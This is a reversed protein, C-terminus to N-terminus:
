KDNTDVAGCQFALVRQCWRGSGFAAVTDVCPSLLERQCLWNREHFGVNDGVERSCAVKKQAERSCLLAVFCPLLIASATLITRNDHM